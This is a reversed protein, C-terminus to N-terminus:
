ESDTYSDGIDVDIDYCIPIEVCITQKIVFECGRVHCIQPKGCERRIKGVKVTPEVNVPTNIEINKNTLSECNCDRNNCIPCGCNKNM